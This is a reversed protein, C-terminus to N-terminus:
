CDEIEYVKWCIGAVNDMRRIISKIEPSNPGFKHGSHDPENFYAALFSPPDDQELMTCLYDVRKEFSLSRNYPLYHTPYQGEIKVESGPWFVVASKKFAKKIRSGCQNETGGNQIWTISQCPM